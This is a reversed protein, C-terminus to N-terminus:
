RSFKLSDLMNEILPLYSEFKEPYAKYTIVYVLNEPKVVLQIARRKADNDDTASFSIEYAEFKNLSSHGSSLLKFDRSDRKLDTIIEKALFDLTANTSTVNHSKIGLGAPFSPSDIQRPAIFTVQDQGIKSREWDNPYKIALGLARDDFTLMEGATSQTDFFASVKSSIPHIMCALILILLVLTLSRPHFHYYSLGQCQVMKIM